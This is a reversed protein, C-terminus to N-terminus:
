PETPEDCSVLDPWLDSPKIGLGAALKEVSRRQPHCSRNLMMSIAPQQVGTKEALESQSIGQADMAAKLRASFSEQREDFRRIEDKFEESERLGIKRLDEIDIGLGGNHSVPFLAESLTALAAEQDDPDASADNIIICMDRIVAQVEDSAELYARFVKAFVDSMVREAQLTEPATTTM